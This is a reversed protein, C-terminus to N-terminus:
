RDTCRLTSCLMIQMQMNAPALCSFNCAANAQKQLSMCLNESSGHQWSLHWDDHRCHLSSIQQMMINSLLSHAFHCLSCANYTAHCAGTQQCACLVLNARSFDITHLIHPLLLPCLPPAQQASCGTRADASAHDPIERYSVRQAMACCLLM